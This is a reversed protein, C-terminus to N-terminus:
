QKIYKSDKILIDNKRIENVTEIFDEPKVLQVSVSIDDSRWGVEKMLLKEIKLSMDRIEDDTRGRYMLVSIHPM